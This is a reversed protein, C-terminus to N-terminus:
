AKPGKQQLQMWEDKTLSMFIFDDSTRQLEEPWPQVKFGLKQNLKINPCNDRRTRAIVCDLNVDEFAYELWRATAESAYGKGLSSVEGVYKGLEGCIRHPPFERWSLSVSGISRHEDKLDLM